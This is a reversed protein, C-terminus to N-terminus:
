DKSGIAEEQTIAPDEALFVNYNGFKFRDEAFALFAQLVQKEKNDKATLTENNVTAFNYPDKLTNTIFFLEDGDTIIIPEDSPVAKDTKADYILENVKYDEGAKTVAYVYTGKVTGTYGDSNTFVLLNQDAIEVTATNPSLLHEITKVVKAM